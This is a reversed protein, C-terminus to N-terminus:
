IGCWLPQHARDAEFPLGLGMVAVTSLALSGLLVGPHIPFDHTRGTPYMGWHQMLGNALLATLMSTKLISAWDLGTGGSLEYVAAPVLAGLLIAIADAVGVIEVAVRRSLSPRALKAALGTPAHLLEASGTPAMTM